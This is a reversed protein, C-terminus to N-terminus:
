QVNYWGEVREALEEYAKRDDLALATMVDMNVTLYFRRYSEALSRGKALECGAWQALAASLRQQAAHKEVQRNAAGQGAVPGAVAAVREAMGAPSELVTAARLAACHEMTLLTLDGDVQLLTRSAPDPLPPVAGCYPCAPLCREYPRSCEKCATLEIEEPDKEKKARKDERALSWYHAKDPFGHRKFNSVLDIVLGFLKGALIRLARGFQQLYVALSATPRAMIVVEVAPVDFGEGFLDVNVLIWLDGRRFRKILENRVDRPTNASISAAPIGHLQFKNAMEGATEVDTAFVIGRKGWAYKIYEKVVDGVIHSRQSAVRGKKPSLDGDKSFDDDDVQLDSTPCVIQYDCLAGMDILQRMTPGQVMTDFVGDYASGLGMNDARRPSATVGLGFANPFMEVAKGWKNTRLVHHAEDITWHEVQVAWAKLQEQRAILTDVGAVACKANPVIFSRGFRERHEAVISGIQARPAIISHPIGRSAVHGSLQGVLENRHAIKVQTSGLQHRDLAISSVIVSKGGGTALQILVNRHGANWENYTAQKLEAQYVDRIDNVPQTDAM